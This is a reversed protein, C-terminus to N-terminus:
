SIGLLVKKIQLEGTFITIASKYKARWDLNNEAIEKKNKSHFIVFGSIVKAGSLEPNGILVWEDSFDAKIESLTKVLM